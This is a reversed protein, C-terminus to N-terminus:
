LRGRARETVRWAMVRLRAAWSYRSSLKRITRKLTPSAQAATIMRDVLGTTPARKRRHQHQTKRYQREVLAVISTVAADLMQEATADAPHTTKGAVPLPRLEALDGVVDYGAREIGSIVEETYKEAWPGRDAPLVLRGSTPRGALVGHALPEKVNWMYFWSPVAEPLAANVRRLLEVEPVGLSSNLRARSTDVCDPDVGLVGALRVWLLEPAVGHPPMTIVHVHERPVDRSWLDLIELTDHVRWFWFQRRDQSGSEKDIVDGLWDDWARTNRHKVTEQWEAPLLTAIDRVTIVVHVETGEFSRVALAAQEPTAAALLEHSIVADKAAYMAQKALIDWEGDWPETPDSDLKIVDRLDQVARFHDQPHHGPLMVGHAALETRNRWMVQQLFTTGTKPEGIHLYVTVLSEGRM